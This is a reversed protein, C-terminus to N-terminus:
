YAPPLCTRTFRAVSAVTARAGSNGNTATLKAGRTAYYRGQDARRYVGCRQHQADEGYSIVRSPSCVISAEPPRKVRLPSTSEVVLTPGFPASLTPVTSS